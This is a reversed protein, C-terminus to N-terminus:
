LAYSGVRPLGCHRLWTRIAMGRIRSHQTHLYLGYEECLIHADLPIMIGSVWIGSTLPIM